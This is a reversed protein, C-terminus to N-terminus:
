HVGPSTGSCRKLKNASVKHGLETAQLQEADAVCAEQGGPGEERGPGRVGEQSGARSQEHM